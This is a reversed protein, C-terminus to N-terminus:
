RRVKREAADLIQDEVRGIEDGAEGIVLRGRLDDAPHELPPSTSLRFLGVTEGADGGTPKDRLMEGQGISLQVHDPTAEVVSALSVHIKHRHFRGTAVVIGAVFGGPAVAVDTIVGVKRGDAGLAEVGARLVLDEPPRASTFAQAGPLVDPQLM